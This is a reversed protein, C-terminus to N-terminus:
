TLDTQCSWHQVQSCLGVPIIKKKKKWNFSKKAKIGPQTEPDDNIMHKEPVIHDYISLLPEICHLLTNQKNKFFIQMLDLSLLLLFISYRNFFSLFGSLLFPSCAIQCAAEACVASVLNHTAADWWLVNEYCVTSGLFMRATPPNFSLMLFECQAEHAKQGEQGRANSGSGQKWEPMDATLMFMEPIWWPVSLIYPLSAKMM